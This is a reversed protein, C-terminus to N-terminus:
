EDDVFGEVLSNGHDRCVGYSGGRASEDLVLSGAQDDRGPVGLRESGREAAQVVVFRQALAEAGGRALRDGRVGLLGPRGRHRTREPGRAAALTFEGIRRVM